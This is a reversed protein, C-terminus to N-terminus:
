RGRRIASGVSWSVLAAGLTIGVMLGVALGKQQDASLYLGLRENLMEATKRLPYDDTPTATTETTDTM